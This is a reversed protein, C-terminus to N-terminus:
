CGPQIRGRIPLSRRGARMAAAPMGTASMGAPFMSNTSLMSDDAPSMGDGVTAHRRMAPLLLARKAAPLLLSQLLPWIDSPLLLRQGALQRLTCDTIPLTTLGHFCTNLLM